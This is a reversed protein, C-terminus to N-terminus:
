RSVSYRGTLTMEAQCGTRIRSLSNRTTNELSDPKALEPAINPEIVKDATVKM